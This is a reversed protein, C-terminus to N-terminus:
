FFRRGIDEMYGTDFGRLYGKNAKIIYSKGRPLLSLGGIIFSILNNFNVIRNKVLYRTFLRECSTGPVLTGDIDFVVLRPKEM